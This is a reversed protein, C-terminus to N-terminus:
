RSPPLPSPSHPPPSPIPISPPPPLPFLSLLPFLSPSFPLLHLYLPIPFPTPSPSIHSLPFSFIPFPPTLPLVPDLFIYLHPSRIPSSISPFFSSHFPSSRPSSSPLLFPSLSPFLSFYFNYSPYPLPSSVSFPRLIAFSLSPSPFHYLPSTDKKTGVGGGRKASLLRYVSRFVSTPPSKVQYSNLTDDVCQPIPTSKRLSVIGDHACIM